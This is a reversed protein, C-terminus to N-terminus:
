ESDSDCDLFNFNSRGDLRIILTGSNEECWTIGEKQLLGIVSNKLKSRGVGHRGCGTIVRFLQVSRVCAGFLLHLKLLRMAQKIHQGHLDITIMNEINKNRATFIDQSAKEDAEQARKNHLRGQESLYSAYEREGNAFATAAKQYYSNMSEWHQKATVRFAKYEDGKAHLSQEQEGGGPELRQGLSEMKKVVNRWNMTNPEHEANKPTPMNFLSKLVELPLESESNGTEKLCHSESATSVESLNRFLNVTPSVNDQVEIESPHSTSNLIEDSLSGNSELLFQADEGDTSDYCCKSQKSSSGSLELLVDLAKEFDYGCQCLVDRIVGLNLDCESGLMSCLFQEKDERSWSDEHFGKWKLSSKNPTSRVYDKGLMTAVMGATAVVKKSRIKSNLKFGQQVCDNAQVFESASSSSSTDVNYNGNSSSSTDMNYNASSSSCSTSHDEDVASEVAKALIEAARNPDGNVEKYASAAQELSVSSFAETLNKLVREVNENSSESSAAPSKAKEKKSVRSRKKKKSQKM